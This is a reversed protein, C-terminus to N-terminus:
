DGGLREALAALFRWFREVSPVHVRERPSHPFRITPGISLMEWDPFAPRFVGCELGGHTATVVPERGFLDRYTGRALAVLPSAPEPTWAQASSLRKTSVGHKACIGEIRAAIEEKEADNSSRVLDLAELRFAPEAALKLIGLNCSSQVLGQMDASMSILGNPLASVWDLLSVSRASSLARPAPKGEVVSAKLGPDASGLRRRLEAAANELRLTWESRASSPVAVLARAERPIANAANGSELSALRWATGQGSKLLLEALALGANARGLHIDAGSHGGLLGEIAVALWASDKPVAVAADELDMEARIRMSGACGICIENEDECDLNILRAGRLAGPGIARAGTMGDEETVTFLCELPGHVLSDSEIFALAAAVGIGNDAGLTTGTAELWDPDDSCPRPRIPDRRFDHAEGDAQGVMDLHAQLVIGRAGERGRTAPKRLVVNGAADNSAEIGRGRARELIFRALGAEDHSVHPVSCISAFISWLLRPELRSLEM